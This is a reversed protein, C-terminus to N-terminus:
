CLLLLLFKEREGCWGCIEAALYYDREGVFDGVWSKWRQKLFFFFFSLSLSKDELIM